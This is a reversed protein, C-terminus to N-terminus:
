ARRGISVRRARVAAAGLRDIAQELRELAEQVDLGRAADHQQGARHEREREGVRREAVGVMVEPLGLDASM